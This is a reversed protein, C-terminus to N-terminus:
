RTRITVSPAGESRFASMEPHAVAYGDLAKTDWSVRGKNYVAMLRTGKATEGAALIQQKIDSELSTSAETVAAMRPTYEADLDELEKRVPALIADRLQEWELRLATAQDRLDVLQDLMAITNM